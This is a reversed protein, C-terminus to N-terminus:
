EGYSTGVAGNSSTSTRLHEIADRIATIWMHKEDSTDALLPFTRTPTNLVFANEGGGLDDPANEDVSFGDASTGIVIEGLPFADQIAFCM